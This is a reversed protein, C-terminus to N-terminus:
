AGFAPERNVFAVAPDIQFQGSLTDLNRRLDVASLPNSVACQRHIRSERTKGFRVFHPRYMGSCGVTRQDINGVRQERNVAPCVRRTFYPSGIGSPVLQEADFREPFSHQEPKAVTVFIRVAFGHHRHCQRRPHLRHFEGHGQGQAAFDAGSYQNRTRCKGFRIGPQQIEGHFAVVPRMALIADTQRLALFDHIGTM